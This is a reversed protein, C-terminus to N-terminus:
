SLGSILSFIGTIPHTREQNQSDLFKQLLFKQAFFPVFCVVVGCHVITLFTIM